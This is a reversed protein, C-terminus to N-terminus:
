KTETVGQLRANPQLLRSQAVTGSIQASVQPSWEVVLNGTTREAYERQRQSYQSEQRRRKEQRTPQSM